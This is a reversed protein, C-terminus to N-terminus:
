TARKKHKDHYKQYILYNMKNKSKESIVGNEFLIRNFYNLWIEEPTM